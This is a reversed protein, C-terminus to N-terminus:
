NSNEITILNEIEDIKKMVKYGKESTKYRIKGNNDKKNEILGREKLFSLYVELQSFSLKAKYMIHTKKVGNKSAKLMDNIIELRSRRM